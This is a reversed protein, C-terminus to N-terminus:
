VEIDLQRQLVSLLMFDKNQSANDLFLGECIDCFINGSLDM